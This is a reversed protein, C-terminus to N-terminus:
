PANGPPICRDWYQMIISIMEELERFSHEKQFFGQVSTSYAVTLHRPNVSLSYFLYPIGKMRLQEDSQITERLTMGDMRPLNIDSLIIFPKLPTTYLFELASEGDNFFILENQYGLRQFIEGLMQQDDLDDEIILVPGGKTM